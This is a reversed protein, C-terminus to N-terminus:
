NVKDDDGGGGGGARLRAAGAAADAALEGAVHGVPQQRPHVAAAACRGGRLRRDTFAGENDAVPRVLRLVHHVQAAVRRTRM